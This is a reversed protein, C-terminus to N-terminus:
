TFEVVCVQFVIFNYSGPGNKEHSPEDAQVKSHSHPLPTARCNGTRMEKGVAERPWLMETRQM